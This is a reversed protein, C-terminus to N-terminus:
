LAEGFLIDEATISCPSVEASDCAVLMDEHWSWLVRKQKSRHLPRIEYVPCSYFERSAIVYELGEDAMAFMEDTVGWEPEGRHDRDLQGLNKAITVRDGVNFM